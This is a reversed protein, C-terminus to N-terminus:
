AVFRLATEQRFSRRDPFCLTDAAGRSLELTRLSDGEFAPSLELKLYEFLQRDHVAIIIQRGHQKSLTRLLAAFHAIHVDDMSQVPDDLILWPLQATVTLHLAIFLTLAATNLNGASLMAGPTGGAQGSRHTTILKPQLRHTSDTPIRFAPVYPENPALRIFLDRWLRNLRDNFEKGIIKSRVAEVKNKITQADSRIGAARKLAEDARAHKTQDELIRDDADKRRALEVKARAVSDRARSRETARSTQVRIREEIVARFQTVVQEPIDLPGPAKQNLSSAFEALTAMTATRAFNRSQYDSLARRAATEAAAHAAGETMAPALRELEAILEDLTGALRDLDIIEKQPVSRSQIEASERELREIQEQQSSRNRSLGLLREASGTLARVKHNVHVALPGKREEGFDRDCVPCTENSIFSALEALVAGLAGSNEAIRGIEDDITQLNKTAVVLESNIEAQRKTDQAARASRDEAQKRKERLSALAVSQYAQPDSHSANLEPFTRAIRTRLAQVPQDFQQQWLGLRESAQRHTDALANEDQQNGADANRSAERAIAELRRRQDHLDSLAAEEPIERLEDLVADLNSSDVADTLGLVSRANNLESLATDLAKEAADRTRRHEALSRELQSKEYEVQGYRETTKRLNRIDGVPALGTEIADLRDLGLLESVFRSLPSDPAADSDQYIQLLQGLLAQPLYCRESFFSAAGSALTSRTQVGSQTIEASFSNEGVLGETQLSISGHNGLSPLPARHLLQSMYQPDARQLSIVRGTLVLEIASLLSTKGAGNEGHVLVVKADLPAQITGKISRFNTIELQRLLIDTM